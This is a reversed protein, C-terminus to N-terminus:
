DAANVGSLFSSMLLILQQPTKNPVLFCYFGTNIPHQVAGGEAGSLTFQVGDPSQEAAAVVLDGQHSGLGPVVHTSRKV